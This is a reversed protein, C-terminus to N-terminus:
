NNIRNKVAILDGMIFSSDGLPSERLSQNDAAGPYGTISGTGAPSAADKDYLARIIV